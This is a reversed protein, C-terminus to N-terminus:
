KAPALPPDVFRNRHLWRVGRLWSEDTDGNVDVSMARIPKDAAVDKVVIDIHILVPTLKQVRGLVALDAGAERALDNDCGNCKHLPAADDLKKAMPTLDVVKLQGREAVLKRFEDTVLALRKLDAEAPGRGQLMAAGAATMATPDAGPSGAALEFTFIAVKPPEAATVADFAGLVLASGLLVSLISLVTRPRDAGFRRKTSASLTM